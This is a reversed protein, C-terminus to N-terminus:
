VVQVLCSRIPRLKKSTKKVARYNNRSRSSELVGIICSESEAEGEDITEAECPSADIEVTTDANNNANDDCIRPGNLHSSLGANPLFRPTPMNNFSQGGTNPKFHHSTPARAIQPTVFRTDHSSDCRTPTQPVPNTISPLRNLDVTANLEQSPQANHRVTLGSTAPNPMTNHQLPQLQMARQINSSVMNQFQLWFSNYVPQQNSSQGQLFNTQHGYQSGSHPPCTGTQTNRNSGKSNDASSPFRSTSHVPIHHGQGTRQHGQALRQQYHQYGPAHVRPLFRHSTHDHSIRPPMNVFGTQVSPKSQPQQSTQQDQINSIEQPTHQVTSQVHQQQQVHHSGTHYQPPQQQVQHDEVHSRQCPQQQVQHDEVHSRQSPFQYTYWFLSPEKPVDKTTPRPAPPRPFIDSTQYIPENSTPGTTQQQLSYILHAVDLSFTDEFM